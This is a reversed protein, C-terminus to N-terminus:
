TELNEAAVGRSRVCQKPDRALITHTIPKGSHPPYNSVSSNEVINSSTQLNLGISFQFQQGLKHKKPQQKTLTAMRPKSPEQIGSIARVACRGNRAACAHPM